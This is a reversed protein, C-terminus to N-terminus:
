GSGSTKLRRRNLPQEAAGTSCPGDQEAVPQWFGETDGYPDGDQDAGGLSPRVLSGCPQVRQPASPHKQPLAGTCSDFQHHNNLGCQGTCNSTGPHQNVLTNGLTNTGPHQNLVWILLTNGLTNTGPHQNLVWNLLTNGLTNTRPSISSASEIKTSM